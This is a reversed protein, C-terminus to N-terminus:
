LIAVILTQIRPIYPINAFVRSGPVVSFGSTDSNELYILAAAITGPSLNASEQEDFSVNVKYIVEYVGAALLIIGGAGTTALSYVDDDIRLPIDIAVRTPTSSTNYLSIRSSNEAEAYRMTEDSTGLLNGINATRNKWALGVNFNTSPDSELYQEPLGKPLRVTTDKVSDYTMLDGLKRLPNIDIVTGTSDVM